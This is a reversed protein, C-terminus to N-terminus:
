GRIPQMTLIINAMFLWYNSLVKDTVSESPSENISGSEIALDIIDDNYFAINLALGQLWEAIAAQKGVRAVMFGYESTFRDFIYNIKEQDTTLAEGNIGENIGDMIHQFYVKKYATHHQKM